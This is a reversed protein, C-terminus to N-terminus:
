QCSTLIDFCPKRFSNKSDVFNYHAIINQMSTLFFFYSTNSVSHHELAEFFLTDSNISYRVHTQRNKNVAYNNGLDKQYLINKYFCM